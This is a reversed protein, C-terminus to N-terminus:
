GGLKLFAASVAAIQQKSLAISHFNIQQCNNKLSNLVTRIPLCDQESCAQLYNAM